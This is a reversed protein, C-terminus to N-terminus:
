FGFIKVIKSILSDIRIPKMIMDSCNVNDLPYENCSGSQLIVPTDINEKKMQNALDIGTKEENLNIDMLVLDYKNSRIKQFFKSTNEAITTKAKRQKLVENLLFGSTKDDDVILISKDSWNNKESM